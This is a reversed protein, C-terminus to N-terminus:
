KLFVPVGYIVPAAGNLYKLLCSGRSKAVAEDLAAFQHHEPELSPSQSTSGDEKTSRSKGKKAHADETEHAQPGAFLGWREFASKAFRDIDKDTVDWLTAVLAPTGAHMYNMPTGYPEYEGAETLCGSSCGMLFTVACQNLRKITRGRIYQAGSGHGFYLFISKSELANQFEEETPARNVIGTWRKMASLERQFISQTATLDGAPNLIYAGRHRDVSFRAPTATKKTPRFQLIRDRLCRLSPMRSVPLGQLCPLSEWPFLHLAKDLILVTHDQGCEPESRAAEHYSRLADLTEVIMMDFDIEDYANREGQFQLIDVVFYLLDMISDEPDSGDELDRIGTFLELVSPHLTLKVDGGQGGKRRSPLHKDLINHFSSAFRALLDVNRSVPSFIGRFGGLWVNEINQLLTELRRDLSERLAWWEKKSNRDTRFRADHASTNALKIIEQMEQKGEDFSFEEEGEEDSTGRKLPLRLLFPTRGNRIKTIVFETQDASISLSLVNWNEPLIDIYDKSFRSCADADTEVTALASAPWTLPDSLSVLQKDIDISLRERDFASIRGIENVNAPPVPVAKPQGPVTVHSLVSIRSMLRSAAHNEATSGFTPVTELVDNLSEKAKSLMVSFDEDRKTSRSRTGRALAKQKRSSSASKVATPEEVIEGSPQISPLSLTSEPLVCYVAHTAFRRIADALLHESESIQLSIQSAGSVAIERAQNLFRSAKDFEQAARLCTAQQRLVEVRLQQLSLSEVMAADADPQRDATADRNTRRTRRTPAAAKRPKRGNEQISLKGMRDELAHVNSLGDFSSSRDAALALIVKHADCLSCLEDDHLGQAKYLGAISLRLSVIELSGELGKSLQAASQLIERGESLHGGRIWDCGLQAQCAILRVTANLTKNVKMAQEGYYIADQFLGNHASLRVLNLLSTHHSAIHPWFPAGESYSTSQGVAPHSIDMHAVSESLLEIESDGKGPLAKDQKRETLRELKAWLRCNLRVSLKAFFLADTMSGQALALKSHVLAADAVVREWAMRLQATTCAIEQKRESKQFIARAESLTSAAKELQGTELLYEVSVLKCSVTALSSVEHQEIYAGARSLLTGSRKCYGLRCYQLALRSLHLVIGSFDKADQLELIRLLLESITLQLKWMGRVEMYDVTAKMQLIWHETDDVCSEVSEWDHCNNAVLIWSSVVGNLEDTQLEGRHFGLILRLADRIHSAFRALESDQSIDPEHSVGRTGEDILTETISSDLSNPHELLFRLAYLIVRLRRIPHDEPSYLRLLTAILLGFTSRFSEDISAYSHLETLLGLQWDLILARQKPELHEDDFILNDNGGKRRLKVKLYTSLVRGLVFGGSKADRCARHPPKGAINTMVDQLIGSDIHEQISQCFAEESELEKNAEYYLHALREFKLAAFGTSREEPSRGQLLSTAQKLLPLLEVYGKGSEKQKLYRSWFINSLKVFGMGQADNGSPDTNEGVAADLATLLRQCDALLPLTDEWAVTKSAVSLKGVGVASDVAALIINKSMHLRQGFQEREKPECDEPPQRGVYRRLFRVFSHLYEVIRTTTEKDLYSAKSNMCDGLCNMTLKKLKAAEILFEELDNSSGRFSSGLATSAEALSRAVTNQSKGSSRLRQLHLFAIRCRITGLALTQDLSVPTTSDTYLKLAEEVCDAEQAIQGLATTIKWMLSTDGSDMSVKAKDKGLASQLRLVTRYISAFDSKDIGYCNHAFSGLYRALPEWLERNEDCVHGSIKWWMTRIELSLLQLTIVTTPKIASRSAYDKARQIVPCLSSINHSLSQLQLAAKERPLNGAKLADVIIKAPNNPNSLLLTGLVRQVTSVRKEAAILRLLNAQFSVILGSLSGARESNRLSLLDAMTEKTTEEEQSEGRTVDVDSKKDDSANDLHQQIRKKLGRLERYALDNLGLAIFRGALICCGQELQINQAATAQSGQEGKLTRLCSLALRACEAIALIGSDSGDTNVSTTKLPKTKSPSTTMRNPSSPQLPTKSAPTRPVAVEGNDLKGTRSKVTPAQLADSLAKSAANFVETALVLKEQLSLRAEDRLDSSTQFVAVKAATKSSRSRTSSASKATRAAKRKESGTKEPDDKSSSSSSRLLIQLASVTSASCTEPSRVARKVSEGPSEPLLTTIAM